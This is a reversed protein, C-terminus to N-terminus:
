LPRDKLISTISDIRDNNNMISDHNGAILIVPYINRLNDLFNWTTIICEPSLNSKNHLLDGCIVILRNKNDKKLNKLSTYLKNFINNYEEQRSNLRIHIDAM